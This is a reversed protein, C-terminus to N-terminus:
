RRGDLEYFRNMHSTMLNILVECSRDKLFPALQPMPIDSWGKPDLFVFKFSNSKAGDILEQIQPLKEIFQGNLAHVHFGPPQHSDKAFQNLKSFASRTKEVLVCRVNIDRDRERQVARMERLADVAIGFSSDSFDESQVGWPGAFGDVYVITDWQSGIKYGWKPLYNGLLRHKVFAQERGSYDGIKDEKM